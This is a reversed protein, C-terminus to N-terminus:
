SSPANSLFSSTAASPTIRAINECARVSKFGHALTARVVYNGPLPVKTLLFPALSQSAAPITRVLIPSSPASRPAVEIQPVLLVAFYANTPTCAVFAYGVQLAGMSDRVEQSADLEIAGSIEGSAPPGFVTLRLDTVDAATM